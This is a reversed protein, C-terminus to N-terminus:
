FWTGDDHEEEEGNGYESGQDYHNHHHHQHHHHQRQQQYQRYRELQDAHQEYQLPLRVRRVIPELREEEIVTPHFIPRAPPGEVRVHRLEPIDREWIEPQFRRKLYTDIVPQAQHVVPQIVPWYVTKRVPERVEQVYREIAHVQYPDIQPQLVRPERHVPHLTVPARAEPALYHHHKHANAHARVDDVDANAEEAKKADRNASGGQGM